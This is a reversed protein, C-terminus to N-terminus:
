FIIWLITFNPLQMFLMKYKMIKNVSFSATRRKLRRILQCRNLKGQSSQGPQQQSPAMVSQSAAFDESNM